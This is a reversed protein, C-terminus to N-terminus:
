FTEFHQSYRGIRLKQSRRVEGETPVLDGALLNLLTSKGAGNSGAIAVHTGMDIGVDVDSLRFDLSKGIQIVSVSKM